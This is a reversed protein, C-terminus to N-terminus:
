ILKVKVIYFDNSIYNDIVNALLNMQTGLIARM